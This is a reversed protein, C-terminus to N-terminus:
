AMTLVSKEPPVRTLGEAAKRDGRYRRFAEEYATLAKKFKGSREFAAAKATHPELSCGFDRVARDLLAMEGVADGSERSHEALRLLDSEFDRYRWRSANRLEDYDAAVARGNSENLAKPLSLLEELAVSAGPVNTRELLAPILADLHQAFEAHTRVAAGPDSARGARTGVAGTVMITLMVAAKGCRRLRQTLADGQIM